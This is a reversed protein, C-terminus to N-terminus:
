KNHSKQAKLAVKEFGNGREEAFEMDAKPLATNHNKASNKKNKSM